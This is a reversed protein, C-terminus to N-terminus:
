ECLTFKPLEPINCCTHVTSLHLFINSRKFDVIDVLFTAKYLVYIVCTQLRSWSSGFWSWIVDTSGRARTNSFKLCLWINLTETSKSTMECWFPSFYCLFRVGRYHASWLSEDWGFIERNTGGPLTRRPCMPQSRYLICYFNFNASIRMKSRFDM